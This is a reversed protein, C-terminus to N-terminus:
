FRYASRNRERAAARGRFWFMWKSGGGIDRVDFPEGNFAQMFQDAEEKKVFGFVAYTKDAHTFYHTYKWLQRGFFGEVEEKRSEYLRSDIAVRYSGAEPQKWHESV